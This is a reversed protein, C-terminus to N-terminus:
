LKLRRSIITCLWHLNYSWNHRFNLDWFLNLACSSLGWQDSSHARPEDIKVFSVWHGNRERIARNEDKLFGCPCGINYRWGHRYFFCGTQKEEQKTIYNCSGHMRKNVLFMRKVVYFCLKRQYSNKEVGM